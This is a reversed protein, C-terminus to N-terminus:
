FIHGLEDLDADESGMYYVPVFNNQPFLEKCHAALKIAHLIKYIFYLPGTFINPQHATTITFTESKKLLEINSIVAETKDLSDYQALLSNALLERDMNQKAKEEIALELSEAKPFHNYFSELTECENLYDLVLNSFFHTQAYPIGTAKFNM